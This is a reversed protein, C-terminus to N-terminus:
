RRMSVLTATLTPGEATDTAALADGIQFFAHWAEQLAPPSPPEREQTAAGAQTKHELFEIFDLAEQQKEPPLGKLKELVTQELMM